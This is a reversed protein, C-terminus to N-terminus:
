ALIGLKTAADIQTQTPISPKYPIFADIADKADKLGLGTMERLEKIIEIKHQQDHEIAESLAKALSTIYTDENNQQKILNRIVNRLTIITSAAREAREQLQRVDLGERSRLDANERRLEAIQDKYTWIQDNFNCSLEEKTHELIEDMAQQRIKANRGHKVVEEFLDHQQQSLM